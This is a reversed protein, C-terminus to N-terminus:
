SFELFKPMGVFVSSQILLKLEGAAGAQIREYGEARLADEGAWDEGAVQAEEHLAALEKGPVRRVDITDCDIPPWNATRSPM